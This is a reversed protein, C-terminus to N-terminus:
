IDEDYPWRVAKYNIGIEKCISPFFVDDFKKIEDLLRKYNQEDLTIAFLDDNKVIKETIKELVAKKRSKSGDKFNILLMGDASTQFHSLLDRNVLFRDLLLHADELNPFEEKVQNIVNEFGLTKNLELWKNTIEYINGTKKYRQLLSPDKKFALLMRSQCEVWIILILIHGARKLIINKIM